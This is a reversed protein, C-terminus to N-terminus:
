KRVEWPQPQLCPYQSWDFGSIFEQIIGQDLVDRVYAAYEPSPEAYTRYRGYMAFCGIDRLLKATASYYRNLVEDDCPRASSSRKLTDFPLDADTVHNLKLSPQPQGHRVYIDHIKLSYAEYRQLIYM